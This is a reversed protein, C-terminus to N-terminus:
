KLELVALRNAIEDRLSTTPTKDLVEHYLKAAEDRNGRMETIRAKQYLARDAYFSGGVAKADDTLKGFTALAQDLNGKREQAYGLGERALFRLRDDLKGNSLLKDYVAMAQDPRDLMLLLEGRQLEAESMLGSHPEAAAFADLEKLAGEAREKETKFHPVGDDKPTGGEPVLEATMVRKVRDLAQSSRVAKREALQAFVISGVVVTALATIGIVIARKRARLAEGAAAGFRTWFTVFEDPQKLEKKISKAV